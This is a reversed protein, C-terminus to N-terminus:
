TTRDFSIGRVRPDFIEFGTIHNGADRKFVLVGIAPNSFEDPRFSRLAVRPRWGIQVSLAASEVSLRYDADLEGSHYTGTYDALQAPSAEVRAFRSGAYLEEGDRSIVVRAPTAASDFTLALDAAVFRGPAVSQLAPGHSDEFALAGDRLVFTVVRHVPSEYSGAFSSPDPVPAASPASEAPAPHAAPKLYEGALYLDAVRHALQAPNAGSVNCLCIVTFRQVPFRLIETEYGFLGGSHEVVSLGRYQSMELGLAYDIERGSNLVGRTELEQVLGKGLRDQYFNQDWGLLDDVSSMLGGDGVKDFNLSWDVRFSGRADPAYAAVRGPVVARHDDHFLTHQMGLPRFINKAAFESLPVGSARQVVEALLFYNTNSYLFDDGPKFNLAKQRAVLALLEAKPHIDAADRGSLALLALIDRLGSTHHLMQRLTIPTGYDPLEPIYKRVDDDLSLLGQQAALVVSAATFQKSVSGMYFVSRSTLPVGLELSAQGYGRRYIFHGDRIVGLACGPSDAKAFASFISDVQKQTPIAPRAAALPVAVSLFVVAICRM